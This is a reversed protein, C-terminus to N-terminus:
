AWGLGMLPKYLANRKIKAWCPEAPFRFGNNRRRLLLVAEDLDGEFAAMQRPFLHEVAYLYVERDGQNAEEIMARMGADQLLPLNPLGRSANKLQYRSDFAPNDLWRDFLVLSLDYREQLGVFGVRTNLNAIAPGPDESGGLWRCLVNRRIPEACFAELHKRTTGELDERRVYAFNSIFRCVPERLWTFYRLGPVAKELGAHPTVRHGCIGSANRYVRLAKRLDDPGVWAHGARKRRPLKIDLHGAGYSVRLQHRLTSGATKPIHIFAYM